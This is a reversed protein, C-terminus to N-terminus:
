SAAVIKYGVGRVNRIWRSGLKSRLRHLHVEIANSAVEEEWGYLCEELERVSIVAGPEDMLAMLVAYERATLTIEEGNLTVSRSVPVICLSGLRLERAHGKVRRLLANVRAVLENLDFPKVLYDDAGLNLGSIRDSVADRATVILVPTMNGKHRLKDLLDLGDQRPLGLDLIILAYSGVMLAHEAERGDSVWDVSFGALRLGQTIGAGIQPDDEALLLKM